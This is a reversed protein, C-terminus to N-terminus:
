LIAAQDNEVHTRQDGAGLEAALKFLSQLRNEFLHLFGCPSTIRNMSSSCVTTPAPAASPAM